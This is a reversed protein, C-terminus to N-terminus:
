NNRQFIHFNSFYIPVVFKLNLLDEPNQYKLDTKFKGIVVSSSIGWKKFIPELAAKVKYIYGNNRFSKLM